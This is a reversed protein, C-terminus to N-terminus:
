GTGDRGPSRPRGPISQECALAAAGLIGADEGLTGVLLELEAAAGTRCRLGLEAELAPRLLPFSNSVGGCFLFRGPDLLATVGALARGLMRGGVEFAQRAAAEGARAERVLQAVAQPDDAISRHGADRANQVLGGASAYAELCGANGCGCRRGHPEVTIHGLEGAMGAHGRWLRRETVVAGGVGTGLAVCVFSAVGTAAGYRAEGWAIANVDNVVRVPLALEERLLEALPLGTLAPLNPALVVRGDVGVTGPVGLGLARVPTPGALTRCLRALAGLLVEPAPDRPTDIRQRRVISGDRGLLAGRCNTGGLDIGILASM